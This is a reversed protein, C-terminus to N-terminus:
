RAHTQLKHFLREPDGEQIPEKFSHCQTGMLAALGPDLKIHKEKAGFTKKPGLTAGTPVYGVRAARYFQDTSTQKLKKTEQNFSMVKMFLRQKNIGERAKMANERNLKNVFSTVLGFEKDFTSQM